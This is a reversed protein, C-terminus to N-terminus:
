RCMQGKEGRRGGEGKGTLSLTEERGWQATEWLFYKAFTLYTHVILCKFYIIKLVGTFCGSPTDLTNRIDAIGLRNSCSGPHYFSLESKFFPTLPCDSAASPPLSTMPAVSLQLPAGQHQFNPAM